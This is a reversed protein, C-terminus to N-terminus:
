AAPQRHTIEVIVEEINRPLQIPLFWDRPYLYDEGSEDIVRILDHPEADHDDLVEYIKRLELAGEYEDNRVCVVFHKESSMMTPSSTKSQGM